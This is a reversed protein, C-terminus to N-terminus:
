SAARLGRALCAGYWTLTQRTKWCGTAQTPCQCRRSSPSMSWHRPTIETLSQVSIFSQHLGALSRLSARCTRTDSVLQLQPLSQQDLPHTQDLRFAIAKIFDSPVTATETSATITVTTSKEMGIIGGRKAAQQYIRAEALAICEADRDTLDARGFWNAVATKLESYTTIAVSVGKSASCDAPLDPYIAKAGYLIDIRIQDKDNTFDYDKLVRVSIGNSQERAKFAVGDPLELPVTVLGFANKHFALNATHNAVVTIAANDAPVASINQYPGSSILAPSVTITAPGTSAGSNADSVVTFQMLDSTALKSVPNVSYM